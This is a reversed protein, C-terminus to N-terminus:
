DLSYFLIGADRSALVLKNDMFTVTNTYGGETIRQILKPNAPNSVDFYYAGGSGSSVALKGDKYDVDSAYGETDYGALYVPQMPNTADLIQLGGQRSAIYVIGNHLRIKQAEGAVATESVLQQTARDYVFLGRQQAAAYIYQDDMALGTVSAPATISFDSGLWLDGNFRGYNISIGNCYLIEMVNGDADNELNRCIIDAIDQSAGTISDFPRLSDPNSTNVIEIKDTGQVENLFMLNREPVLDVKRIRLLTTVSGDEALLQTMMNLSYDTPDIIGLGGQDLAMYLKGEVYKMHYPNGVVPVTRVLELKDGSQYATNRKACGAAFLLAVLLLGILLSRSM